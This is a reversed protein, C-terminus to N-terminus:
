SDRLGTMVFETMGFFSFISHQYSIVKEGALARQILGAVAGKFFAVIRYDLCSQGNPRIADSM